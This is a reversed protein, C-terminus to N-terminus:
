EAAATDRGPALLQRLEGIWPEYRRCRAVLSTYVPQRTQWLSATKVQHENREPADCANHMSDTM